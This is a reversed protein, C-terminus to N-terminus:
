KPLYGENGSINVIYWEDNFERITLSPVKRTFFLVNTNRDPKGYVPYLTMDAVKTISLLNPDNFFYSNDSYGNKNKILDVVILSFILTGSIVLIILTKQNLKGERKLDKWTFFFLSFVLFFLLILITIQASLKSLSNASFEPQVLLHFKGFEMDNDNISIVVSSTYEGDPLIIPLSYEFGKVSRTPIQWGPQFNESKIKKGDLDYINVIIQNINLDNNGNNQLKFELPLNTKTQSNAIVLSNLSLSEHVENTVNIEIEISGGFNIKTGQENNIQPAFLIKGKYEGVKADTPIKFELIFNAKNNENNTQPIISLWTEIDNLKREFSVANIQSGNSIVTLPMEWSTGPMADKISINSPSVSFQEEAKVLSILSFFILPLALLTKISFRLQM